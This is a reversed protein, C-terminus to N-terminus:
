IDGSKQREAGALSKAAHREEQRNLRNIEFVILAGAKALDVRHDSKNPNWKTDSWPWYMPIEGITRGRLIYSAAAFALEGSAYKDDESAMGGDIAEHIEKSIMELGNM